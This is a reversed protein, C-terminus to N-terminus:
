FKKTKILKQRYISVLLDEQQEVTNNLVKSADKQYPNIKLFDQIKQFFEDQKFFDDNLLSARARENSGQALLRSAVSMNVYGSESTPCITKFDLPQGKIMEEKSPIRDKPPKQGKVFLRGPGHTRIAAYEIEQWTQGEAIVFPLPDKDSAGWCYHKFLSIQYAGQADGKFPTQYSKMFVYISDVSEAKKVSGHLADYKEQAKSFNMSGVYNVFGALLLFDKETPIGLKILEEERSVTKEDKWFPAFFLLYPLDEISAVPIQNSPREGRLLLHGLGCKMKAQEELGGWNTEKKLELNLINLAGMKDKCSVQILSREKAPSAIVPGGAFLFLLFFFSVKKIM